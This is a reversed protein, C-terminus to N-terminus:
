QMLSRYETPIAETAQREIEREFNQELDEVFAAAIVFYFITAAINILLGLVISVISWIMASKAADAAETTKGSYHLGNVKSAYVIAVIGTPLCCLVTSIIAIALNNGPCPTAPIGPAPPVPIGPTAAPPPPIPTENLTHYPQQKTTLTRLFKLRPM